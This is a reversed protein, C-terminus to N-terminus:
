NTQEPTMGGKNERKLEPKKTYRMQYLFNREKGKGKRKNGERGMLNSCEHTHNLERNTLNRKHAKLSM